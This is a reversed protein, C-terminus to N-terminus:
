FSSIFKRLYKAEEMFSRVDILNTLTPWKNIPEIEIPDVKLVGVFIVHTCWPSNELNM